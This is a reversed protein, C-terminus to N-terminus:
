IKVSLLVIALLMAGVGAFWLANRTLKGQLSLARALENTTERSLALRDASIQESAAAIVEVYRPLHPAIDLAKQTADRLREMQRRP